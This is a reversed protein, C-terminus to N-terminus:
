LGACFLAVSYAKYLKFALSVRIHDIAINCATFQLISHLLDFKQQLERVQGSTIVMLGTADDKSGGVITGDSFYM